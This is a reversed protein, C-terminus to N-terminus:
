EKKDLTKVFHNVRIPLRFPRDATTITFYEKKAPEDHVQITEASSRLQGLMLEMKEPDGTLFNFSTYLRTPSTYAIRTTTKALHHLISPIGGTDLTSQLERFARGGDVFVAPWEGDLAFQWACFLGTLGDGVFIDGDQMDVEDTVIYPCSPFCSRRLARMYRTKGAYTSGTVWKASIPMRGLVKIYDPPYAIKKEEGTPAPVMQVPPEALLAGPHQYTLAEVRTARLLIWQKGAVTKPCLMIPHARPQPADYQSQALLESVTLQMATLLAHNSDHEAAASADLAIADYVGPVVRGPCYTGGPVLAPCILENENTAAVVMQSRIMGSWEDPVDGGKLIDMFAEVYKKYKERDGEETPAPGVAREPNDMVEDMIADPDLEEVPKDNVVSASTTM